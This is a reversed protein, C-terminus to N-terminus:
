NYTESAEIAKYKTEWCHNCYLGAFYRNKRADEYRVLKGCGSCKLMGNEFNAIADQEAKKFDEITKFRGNVLMTGGDDAWLYGEIYENGNWDKDKYIHTVYKAVSKTVSTTKEYKDVLM